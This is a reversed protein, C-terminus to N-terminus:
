PRGRPHTCCCWGSRTTGPQASRPPLLTGHLSWNEGDRSWHLYDRQWPRRAVLRREHLEHQTEWARGIGHLARQLLMM